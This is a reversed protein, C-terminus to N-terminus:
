RLYGLFILGAKCCCPENEGGLRSGSRQRGKTRGLLEDWVKSNWCSEQSERTHVGPARLEGMEKPVLGDWGEPDFGEIGEGQSNLLPVAPAPSLGM